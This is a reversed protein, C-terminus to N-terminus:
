TKHLSFSHPMVQKCSCLLSSYEKNTQKNKLYHREERGECCITKNRGSHVGANEVHESIAHVIVEGDIAVADLDIEKADLIFKSVVVRGVHETSPVAQALYTELESSNYVVTM